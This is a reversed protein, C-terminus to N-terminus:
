LIIWQVIYQNGAVPTGSFFFQVSSIGPANAIFQENTPAAVEGRGAIVTPATAYAGDHYTFTISPTAAIGAGNATLTLTGASDTGTVSNKAATNGWGASLAFDGTVVANGITARFRNYPTTGGLTKNTLIDTTAKGVATDNAAPIVFPGSGLSVQNSANVLVANVDGSNTANRATVLASNNAGRLLGSLSPVSAYAFATAQITGSKDGATGNGVDIVGAADRSLGTDNNWKIVKGSSLITDGTNTIQTATAAGINPTTLTPSTKRVLGGTGTVTNATEVFQGTTLTLDGTAITQSGPPNLLVAGSFSAGSSTPVMQALDIPSAGAISWNGFSAVQTNSSDKLYAAYITGSPTLEDNAWIQTNAPIKGTSDLTIRVELPVVQGGGSTVESPQSLQLILFGGAIVNGQTDQFAVTSQITKM